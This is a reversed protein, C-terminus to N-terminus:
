IVWPVLSNEDGLLSVLQVSTNAKLIAPATSEHGALNATLECAWGRTDPNPSELLPLVYDLAKADIVAKAGDVWYTIRSLAYAAWSVLSDRDGLLSVIQECLKLRLIAPATFEHSALNGTLKSAWEQTDPNPSELLRLVHNLVGADVVAKAGDVWDAIQSLAYAAQSFLDEDGLLSVLQMSLNLKLIARATSKHSALNGILKCAWKQTDPNPSELLRLVHDLVKADVLDKAGDAWRAIQSLAYTAQCVVYDEDGLSSVLRVFPNLKLVAPATSEHLALNGALECALRQIYSEPSKLLALVHDLAKADVVSKAGDVWRSLHTLAATAERIVGSHNDDLLFVLQECLKLELIAPATSKFWALNGLLRCSCIQAQRDPSGLMQAIHSWVPSDVVACAEVESSETRDALESLIVAKTAWSFM